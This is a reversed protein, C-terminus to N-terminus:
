DGYLAKDIQEDFADTPLVLDYRALIRKVDEAEEATSRARHWESNSLKQGLSREFDVFHLPAAITGHQQQTAAAPAIAPRPGPTAAAPPKPSPAPATSLPWQEQLATHSPFSPTTKALPPPPPATALPSALFVSPAISLPPSPTAKTSVALAGFVSGKSGGSVSVAAFPSAPAFTGSSGTAAAVPTGTMDEDEPTANKSNDAEERGREQKEAEKAYADEGGGFSGSSSCESEEDGEEEDNEEEKQTEEDYEEDREEGEEWDEEDFESEEDSLPCADTGHLGLSGADDDVETSHDM